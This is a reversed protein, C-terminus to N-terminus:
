TAINYYKQFVKFTCGAELFKCPVVLLPCEVNMHYTLQQSCSFDYLSHIVFSYQNCEKHGSFRAGLESRM